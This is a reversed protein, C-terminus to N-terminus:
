ENKGRPSAPRIRERMQQISATACIGVMLRRGLQERLSLTRIVLNPLLGLLESLDKGRRAGGRKDAGPQPASVIGLSRRSERVKGWNNGLRHRIYLKHMEEAV